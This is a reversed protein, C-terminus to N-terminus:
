ASVAVPRNDHVVEFMPVGDPYRAQHEARQRDALEVVPRWHEAREPTMDGAELATRLVEVLFEAAMHLAEVGHGDEAAEMVAYGPMGPRYAFMGSRVSGDGMPAELRVVFRRRGEHWAVYVSLRWDALPRTQSFRIERSM